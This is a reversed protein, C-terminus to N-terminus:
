TESSSGFLERTFPKEVRKVRGIFHRAGTGCRQDSGLRPPVPRSLQVDGHEHNRNTTPARNQDRARNEPAPGPATWCHSGGRRQEEPRVRVLAEKEPRSVRERPQNKGLGRPTIHARARRCCHEPRTRSNNRTKPFRSALEGDSERRAGGARGAPNSEFAFVM